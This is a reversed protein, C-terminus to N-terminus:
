NSACYIIEIRIGANDPINIGPIVAFRADSKYIQGRVIYSNSGSYIFVPFYIDASPVPSVTGITYSTWATMATVAADFCVVCISGQRFCTKNISKVVSSNETLSIANSSLTDVTNKLTNFETSSAAGLSALTYTSNADDRWGPNGSGDTKWVKSKNSSGPASVYGAVNVSNANWTNTTPPTYGLANTVMTKNIGTIYGSDNTIQSTKEIKNAGSAIGNLKSFMDTSMLGNSTASAVSYTTNADDRWGPNGNGDTKWVKNANSSGPASVYGAVNVSNANWTNNDAGWSATGASSWRLIQGSSGGSPIHNNGNGTPHTYVTDSFKAGSPVDVAVTHGNVKSANGASTAYGSNTAYSVNLGVANWNTGDYIFEIPVNAVSLNTPFAAGAHKMAKAGLSNVNLTSNASTIGNTFTVIIKMGSTLAAVGCDVVKAATAAATSCTGSYVIKNAITQTSTSNIYVDELTNKPYLIKVNGGKDVKSYEVHYKTTAM